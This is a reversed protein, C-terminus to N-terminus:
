VLLHLAHEADKGKFLVVDHEKIHTRIYESIEIPTYIYLPITSSVSRVGSEFAKFHSSNTLLIADCNEAALRGVMEHSSEAYSGLEVMPQFVVIKKGKQSGLFRVAAIAADPNNNFTDDIFVSGNVGPLIHMVKDASAVHAAVQTANYFKMGLAVAGAIAATINGAQHVGVVPANIRIKEKRYVCDFSVGNMNSNVHEVRFINSPNIHLTTPQLVKTTWGWVECGDKIAQKALVVVKEDDLNMIAIKKGVLHQLLEYKAKMTTEISGFLDQHQPNIATLIGVEPRVMTSMEAIEGPRYAGMEVVFAKHSDNLSRLVVEAIGIPSNKSAETKLTPYTSSLITALYEKVSTKGYSGTIGVVNMPTHLRLLSVAKRIKVYHYIRTPVAMGYVLVLSVPFLLLDAITLTLLIPLSVILGMGIVFASLAIFLVIVKLSVPPWLWSRFSRLYSVGLVVFFGALFIHIYVTRPIFLGLMLLGFMIGHTKGFLVNEGQKTKLHIRMRDMRYEKRWWLFVLSPMTHLFRVAFGLIGIITIFEM